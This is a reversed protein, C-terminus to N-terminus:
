RPSDGRIAAGSCRPFRSCLWIARGAAERPLMATGCVPCPPGKPGEPQAAIPTPTQDPVTGAPRLAQAPYAPGESGPARRAAARSPPTDDTMSGAAPSEALTRAGDGAGFSPRNRVKDMADALDGADWLIAGTEEGMTVAGGTFGATTVVLADSCRQYEAGDQGARIEDRDVRTLYHRACVATRRGTGDTLVLDVGYEGGDGPQEVRYGLGSFLTTLYRVFEAPAMQRVDQLGARALKRRDATLVAIAIAAPILIVLLIIAWIFWPLSSFM